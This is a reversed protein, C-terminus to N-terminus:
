TVNGISVICNALGYFVPAYHGPDIIEAFSAQADPEM